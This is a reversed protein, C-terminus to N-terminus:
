SEGGIGLDHLWDDDSQTDSESVEEEPTQPQPVEGSMREEIDQYLAKQAMHAGTTKMVLQAECGACVMEILIEGDASASIDIIAPKNQCTPCLLEISHWRTQM